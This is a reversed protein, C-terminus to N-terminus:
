QSPAKKEDRAGFFVAAALGRFVGDARRFVARADPAAFRSAASKETAARARMAPRFYRKRLRQRRCKARSQAIARTVHLFAPSFTDHRNRM